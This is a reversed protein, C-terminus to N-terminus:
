IPYFEPSYEVEEPLLFREFILGYRLPDLETIGLCYGVCSAAASGRGAGTRIGMEHMANMLDSVVLFYSDYGLRQITRLEYLIRDIVEQSPDKGYRREVGEWVLREFYEQESEGTPIPFDPFMPAQSEISLPEISDAVVLSNRLLDDSFRENMQEYSRLFFEGPMFSFRDEEKKERGTSVCLLSDHADSDEELVYHCDETPVALAGLDKAMKLLKPLMEREEPITHDMVEVFFNEKGVMDRFASAFEYAAKDDGRMFAQASPGNLCGSLITLGEAHEALLDMDMRPNVYFGETFARSSLKILNDFGQQNRALITLHYPGTQELEDAAGSALEELDADFRTKRALYAEIGYIPKIGNARCADYFDPWGFLNGHDTIALAPMGLEAARATYTDIQGHGDLMSWATHTHLNVFPSSSM